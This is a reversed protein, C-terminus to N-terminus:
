LSYERDDDAYWYVEGDGEGNAVRVWWTGEIEERIEESEAPEETEEHEDEAGSEEDEVEDEDM